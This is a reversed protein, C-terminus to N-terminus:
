KYLNLLNVVLIKNESYSSQKSIYLKSLELQKNTIDFDGANNRIFIKSDCKHVQSSEPIFIHLINRGEILVENISLNFTPL